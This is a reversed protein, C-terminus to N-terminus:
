CSATYSANVTQVGTMAQLQQLWITANKATTALILSHTGAFASEQSMPQWTPKDGRARAQEYCPSALRFGLGDVGELVTNYTTSSSFTAKVYTGAQQQNLFKPGPPNVPEMPCNAFVNAQLSAVEPLWKLRDYWSPASAATADVLLTHSRPFSAELTDLNTWTFSCLVDTKLGLNTVALLAETFTTGPKFTIFANFAPTTPVPPEPIALQWRQKGTDANM